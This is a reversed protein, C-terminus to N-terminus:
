YGASGRRTEDAVYHGGGIAPGGGTHGPGPHKHANTPGPAGYSDETLSGRRYGPATNMTGAGTGAMTNGSNVGAGTGVNGSPYTGHPYRHKEPNEIVRGTAMEERGRNIIGQNRAQGERDRMATDVAMNFQGRIQEGAGHLGSMVGELKRGTTAGANTGGGAGHMTTPMTTSSTTTTTTSGPATTNTYGANGPVMNNSNQNNYSSM